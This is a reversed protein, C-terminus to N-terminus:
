THVKRKVKGKRNLVAMCTALVTRPANAFIEFASNSAKAHLSDM